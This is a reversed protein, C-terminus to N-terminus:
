EPEHDTSLHKSAMPSKPKEVVIFSTEATKDLKSLDEPDVVDSGKTESETKAKSSLSPKTSPPPTPSGITAVKPSSMTQSSTLSSDDNGIRQGETDDVQTLPEESQQNNVSVEISSLNQLENESLFFLYM